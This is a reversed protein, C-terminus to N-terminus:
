DSWGDNDLDNLKSHDIHKNAEAARRNQYWFFLGWLGAIVIAVIIVVGLVSM